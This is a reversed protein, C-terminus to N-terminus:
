HHGGLKPRERDCEIMLAIKRLEGCCEEVAHFKAPDTEREYKASLTSLRSRARSIAETAGLYKGVECAERKSEYLEDYPDSM